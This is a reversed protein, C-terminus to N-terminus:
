SARTERAIESSELAVKEKLLSMQKEVLEPAKEVAVLQALVWGHKGPVAGTSDNLLVGKSLKSSSAEAGLEFDESLSWFIWIKGEAAEPIGMGPVLGLRQM